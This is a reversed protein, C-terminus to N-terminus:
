TLKYTSICCAWDQSSGLTPAYTQAGAAILVRYGANLRLAGAKFTLSALNVYAADETVAVSTNAAVDGFAVEIAQVTAATAGSSPSTSTGSGSTAKDASSAQAHNSWAVISGHGTNSASWTITITDAAVLQTGTFSSGIGSMIGLGGPSQSQEVTYTNGRSDTIGSLSSGGSRASGACVVVLSGAPITGVVTYTETASAANDQHTGDLTITPVFGGSGFGALQTLALM